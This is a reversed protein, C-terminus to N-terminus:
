VTGCPNSSLNGVCGTLFSDKNFHAWMGMVDKAQLMYLSNKEKTFYKRGGM